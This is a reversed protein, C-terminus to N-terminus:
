SHAISAHSHDRRKSPLPQRSTLSDILNLYEQCREKWNHKKVYQSANMALRSRLKPDRGLELIAQALDAENESEFFRVRSDDHYYTDIRTRSAVVPIGLSMFEMIKTSVAENGFPSSARKPVVALDSAAMIEAIENVPLSHHFFVRDLLGLQDKLDILSPKTPGEGYIHFEAEPMERVVRAFARVAIDLGQHRNLSGPYVIVFRGNVSERARPRFVAPDPYNLVVTCKESKVSRSLLRDRWIDNAIIVHNSFAISLKEVGVLAKFMSSDRTIGFKSAYFEPLIDHIDLIIRAGLLRPITAAFVLFDPVSHVHIVDYRRLIHERSLVLTSRFFFRLIRLFYTLRSKENVKRALVRHVNVGDLVEFAPKDESRLAIVDVTDGRDVLSRAYQLVRTDGEYFSYVLM